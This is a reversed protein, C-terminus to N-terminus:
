AIDGVVIGLASDLEMVKFFDGSLHRVPFIEGAVEYDGSSFQRPACLRRQTKDVEFIGRQLKSQERRLVDLEEELARIKESQQDVASDAEQETPEAFFRGDPDLQEPSTSQWMHCM